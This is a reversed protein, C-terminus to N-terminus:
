GFQFAKDFACYECVFGLLIGLHHGYELPNACVDFVVVVVLVGVAHELVPYRHALAIGVQHHSHEMSLVDFSGHGRAEQSIGATM